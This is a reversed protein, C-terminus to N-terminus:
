GSCWQSGWGGIMNIFKYKSQSRGNDIILPVKGESLSADYDYILDPTALEDKFQFVNPENM